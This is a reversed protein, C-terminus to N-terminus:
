LRSRADSPSLTLPRMVSDQISLMHSVEEDKTRMGVCPYMCEERVGDFAVGLCMGNKYYAITGAARNLCAGIVDGAPPSWCTSTEYM